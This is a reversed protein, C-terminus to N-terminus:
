SSNEPNMLWERREMNLSRVPIFEGNEQIGIPFGTIMSWQEELLVDIFPADVKQDFSERAKVIIKKELNTDVHYFAELDEEEFHLLFVQVQDDIKYVDLIKFHANPLLTFAFWRAAGPIALSQDIAKNSAIAFRLSKTLGGATASMAIYGVEKIINGVQYMNILEDPLNIDRYYMTLGSYTSTYIEDIKKM